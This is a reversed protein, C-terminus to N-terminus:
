EEIGKSACKLSATREPHIGDLRCDVQDAVVVEDSDCHTPLVEADTEDQVMLDTISPDRTGLSDAGMSDAVVHKDARQVIQIDLQKAPESLSLRHLGAHRRIFGALLLM